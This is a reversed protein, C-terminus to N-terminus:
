IMRSNAKKIDVLLDEGKILCWKSFFSTKICTAWYGSNLLYELNFPTHTKKEKTNLKILQSTTGQTQQLNM